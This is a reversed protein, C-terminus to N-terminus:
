SHFPERCAAGAEDRANFGTPTWEAIICRVAGFTTWTYRTRAVEATAYGEEIPNGSAVFFAQRQALWDSDAHTSYDSLTTQAFMQILQAHAHTQRQNAILSPVGAILATVAVVSALVRVTRAVPFRHHRVSDVILMVVAAATAGVMAGATNTVLDTLDNTGVGIMPQMLEIALSGLAAFAVTRVPARWVLVAFFAAPAFLIVNLLGETGLNGNLFRALGWQPAWCNLCWTQPPERVLTVLVIAGATVAFGFFGARRAGSALPVRLAWTLIAALVFVAALGGLMWPTTFASIYTSM